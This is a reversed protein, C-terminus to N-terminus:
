VKCQEGATDWIDLKIKQQNDLCITQSFFSAGITPSSHENFHRRVFRQAICSKGVGEDGAFACTLILVQSSFVYFLLEIKSLYYNLYWNFTM